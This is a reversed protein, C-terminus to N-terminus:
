IKQAQPEQIAVVTVDSTAVDNMLNDYVEGQKRV